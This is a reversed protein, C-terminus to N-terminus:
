TQDPRGLNGTILPCVLSIVKQIKILEQESCVRPSVKGRARILFPAKRSLDRSEHIRSVSRFVPAALGEQVFASLSPCVAWASGCPWCKDVLTEDAPTKTWDKIQPGWLTLTLFTLMFNAIAAMLMHLTLAWESCIHMTELTWCVQSQQSIHAGQDKWLPSAGRFVLMGETFRCVLIRGPDEIRCRGTCKVYPVWLM